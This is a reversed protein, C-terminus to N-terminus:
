RDQVFRMSCALSSLPPLEGSRSSCVAAGGLAFSRKKDRNGHLVSAVHGDRGQDSPSGPKSM